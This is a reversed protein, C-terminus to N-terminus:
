SNLNGGLNESIFKKYVMTLSDLSAQITSKSEESKEVFDAFQKQSEIPPVLINIKLLESQGITTMTVTKAQALIQNRCFPLTLQIQLFEPICLQLDLPLRIVHCEFLTNSPTNKPVISAKGIGEAVLSSRCFLVDGYKVSFRQIDSDSGIARPLNDIKSYLTNVINTVGLISINGDETYENKKAFFGNSAKGSLVKTINEVKSKGSEITGFMEVFKAKVMEDTKAILKKYSEMTAVIQWLVEALKKQEDLEPLNFKLEKLDRWNITPSLSGVSIKIAADLFYDSAIFLPFFHKDIVDEKPRLVMGHASFIGDFPAIAVKKQYARRKGFLVDGKKMILKDGIPAVESGFRSVKFTGSDLHELGLYHKKDSEVPKKKETSNIAIDEFRYEAM